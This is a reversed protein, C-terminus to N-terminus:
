VNQQQNPKKWTLLELIGCLVAGTIAGFLLGLLIVQHPWFVNSTIEATKTATVSEEEAVAVVKDVDDLKNQGVM